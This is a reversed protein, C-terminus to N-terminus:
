QEVEWLLAEQLLALQARHQRHVALQALAAQPGAVFEQPAVRAAAELQRQRERLREQAAAPWGARESAVLRDLEARVQRYASESTAMERGLAEEFSSAPAGPAGAGPAGAGPAPAGPGSAASMGAAPRAALRQGGVRHLVNVLVLGAIALALGAIAGRSRLAPWYLWLRGRRADAIEEEGIRELTRAWLDPPPELPALSRAADRLMAEEEVCARCSDCVRMHGRVAACRREDLEGDLYATSWRQVDRCRM